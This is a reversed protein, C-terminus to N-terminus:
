GVPETASAPTEAPARMLWWAIALGVAYAIVLTLIASATSPKQTMNWVIGLVLAVNTFEVV